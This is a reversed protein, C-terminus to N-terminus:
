VIITTSNNRKIEYLPASNLPIDTITGVDTYDGPYVIINGYKKTYDPAQLHLNSPGQFIAKELWNFGIIQVGSTYPHFVCSLLYGAGRKNAQDSTPLVTLNNVYGFIHVNQFSSVLFKFGSNLGLFHNNKVHSSSYLISNNLSFLRNDWMHGHVLIVNLASTIYNDYFDGNSVGEIVVNKCCEDFINHRIIAGKVWIHNTCQLFKNGHIQGTSSSIVINPLDYTDDIDYYPEIINDHCLGSKSADENDGNTFTYYFADPTEIINNTVASGFGNSTIDAYKIYNLKSYVSSSTFSDRIFTPKFQINKFDYPASNNFEDKLYYIVGYGGPDAWAFRDTDNDLCYKIEWASLNSSNFYGKGRACDQNNLFLDNDPFYWRFGYKEFYGRNDNYLYISSDTLDFVTSPSDTTGSNVFTTPSDSKNDVTNIFTENGNNDYSYLQLYEVHKFDIKDVHAKADESLTNETLAQVLIEFLHNASSTNEQTTTTHYDTIRYWMGPVLEGNNRKSVLDSYSVPLAETSRLIDVAWEKICEDYHKLGEYDLIEM